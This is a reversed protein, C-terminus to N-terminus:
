RKFIFFKKAYLTNGTGGAKSRLRTEAVILDDRETGKILAAYAVTKTVIYLVGPQPSPLMHEGSYTRTFIPIGEVEGVRKDASTFRVSIPSAPFTVMEGKRNMVEVDYSTLNMIKKEEM